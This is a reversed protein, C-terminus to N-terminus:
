LIMCVDLKRSMYFAFHRKISNIYNKLYPCILTWYQRRGRQRSKCKFTRTLWSTSNGQSWWWRKAMLSTGVISRKKRMEIGADCTHTRAHKDKHSDKLVTNEKTADHRYTVSSRHKVHRFPRWWIVVWMTRLEIRRMPTKTTMKM